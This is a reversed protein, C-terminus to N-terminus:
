KLLNIRHTTIITIAKISVLTTYTTLAKNIIVVKILLKMGNFSYMDVQQIKQTVIENTNMVRKVQWKSPMIM